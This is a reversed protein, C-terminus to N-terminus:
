RKPLERRPPLTSSPNFSSTGHPQPATGGSIIHPKNTQQQPTRQPTTTTTRNSTPSTKVSSSTSSKPPPTLSANSAKPTPQRDDIVQATSDISVVM